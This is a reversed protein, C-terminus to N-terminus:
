FVHKWVRDEVEFEMRQATNYTHTYVKYICSLPM